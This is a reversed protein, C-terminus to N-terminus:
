KSSTFERSAIVKGRYTYSVVITIGDIGSEEELMECFDSYSDSQSELNDEFAKVNEKYMAADETIDPLNMIDYECSITNGDVTMDFGSSSDLSELTTKVSDHTDIFDALSQPKDCGAASFVCM